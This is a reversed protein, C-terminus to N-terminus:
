GDVQFRGQKAGPVLTVRICRYRSEDMVFTYGTDMDTDPETPHQRIGYVVAHTQPGVGAVGQVPAPSNDLNVRVIQPPLDTEPTVTGDANAVLPKTFIVSAPKDLILQYATVARAVPDIPM